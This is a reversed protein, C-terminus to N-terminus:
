NTDSDDEFTPSEDEFIDNLDNRLFNMQVWIDSIRDAKEEYDLENEIFYKLKDDLDDLYLGRTRKDTFRSMVENFKNRLIDKDEDQEALKLIDEISNYIDYIENRNM